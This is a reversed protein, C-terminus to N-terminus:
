GDGHVRSHRRQDGEQKYGQGKRQMAARYKWSSIGTNHLFGTQRFSFKDDGELQREKSGACNRDTTLWEYPCWTPYRPTIKYTERRVWKGMRGTNTSVDETGPNKNFAPLVSM